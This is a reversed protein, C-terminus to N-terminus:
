RMERMPRRATRHPRIDSVITVEITRRSDKLKVTDGFSLKEKVKIFGCCLGKAKFGEPKDPSNVSYIKGEVMAIGMDTACTLVTGMPNGDAGLVVTNEDLTVKRLDKGVFPLTYEPSEVALIAKDGVFEKTFATEADDYPLAFPWPHNIYPWPGVDQHSLPLVAGARLSDRAALGCPILGFPEGADLIMQWAKVFHTPDLFIEFGFEGTYGTRSLLIPTGDTLLVAGEGGATPAYDGKFSFYPMKELIGDPDALVKEMIRAAAPGQIDFKAVKDTLDTVTADLDGRLGEVHRSVEGAMGANVVV